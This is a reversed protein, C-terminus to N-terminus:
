RVQVRHTRPSADLGDMLLMACGKAADSLMSDRHVALM